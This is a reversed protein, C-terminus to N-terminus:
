HKDQGIDRISLIYASHQTPTSSITLPHCKKDAVLAGCEGCWGSCWRVALISHEQLVFDISEEYFKDRIFLTIIVSKNPQTVRLKRCIITTITAAVHLIVRRTKRVVPHTTQARVAIRKPLFQYVSIFESTM